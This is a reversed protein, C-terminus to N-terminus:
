RTHFCVMCYFSCPFTENVTLKTNFYWAWDWFELFQSSFPQFFANERRMHRTNKITFAACSFTRIEKPICGLLASWANCMTCSLAAHSTHNLITCSLLLYFCKFGRVIKKSCVEENTNIAGCPKSKAWFLMILSYCFTNESGRFFCSFLCIFLVWFDWPMTKLNELSWSFLLRQIRLHHHTHIDTHEQPIIFVPTKMTDDHISTDRNRLDDNIHNDKFDWPIM